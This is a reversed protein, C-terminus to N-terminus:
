RELTMLKQHIAIIKGESPPRSGTDASTIDPLLLQNMMERRKKLDAGKAIATDMWGLANTVRMEIEKLLKEPEEKEMRLLRQPDHEAMKRLATLAYPTEITKM